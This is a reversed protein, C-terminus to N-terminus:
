VVVNAAVAEGSVESKPISPSGPTAETLRVRNFAANDTGQTRGDRGLNIARAYHGLM